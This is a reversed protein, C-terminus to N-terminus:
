SARAQRLRHQKEAHDVCVRKLAKLTLMTGLNTGSGPERAVPTYRAWWEGDVKRLLYRAEGDRALIYRGTSDRGTSWALKPRDIADFPKLAVSLLVLAQEEQEKTAGITLAAVAARAAAVLAKTHHSM